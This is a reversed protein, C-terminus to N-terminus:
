RAHFAGLRSPAPRRRPGGGGCGVADGGRGADHRLWVGCLSDSAILSRPSHSKPLPPPSSRVALSPLGQGVTACVRLRWEEVVPEWAEEVFKHEEADAAAGEYDDGPEEQQRDLDDAFLRPPQEARGEGQGKAHALADDEDDDSDSDSAEDETYHSLMLESLEEVRQEEISKHPKASAEENGDDGQSAQPDHDPQTLALGSAPLISEYRKGKREKSTHGKSTPVAPQLPPASRTDLRSKPGSALRPAATDRKAPRAERAPAPLHPSTPSRGREISATIKKRMREREREERAKRRKELRDDVLTPAQATSSSVPRPRALRKELGATSSAGAAAITPGATMPGNVLGAVATSSIMSSRKRRREIMADVKEAEHSNGTVAAM